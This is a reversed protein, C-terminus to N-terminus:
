QKIIKKTEKPKKKYEIQLEEKPIKILKSVSDILENKNMKSYAPCSEKKYEKLYERLQMVTPM